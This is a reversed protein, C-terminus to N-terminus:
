SGRRSCCVYVDLDSLLLLLGAWNNIHNSKKICKTVFYPKIDNEKNVNNPYAHYMHTLPTNESTIGTTLVLETSANNKYNFKDRVFNGDHM